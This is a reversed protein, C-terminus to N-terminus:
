ILFETGKLHLALYYLIEKMNLKLSYSANKTLFFAYNISTSNSEKHGHPLDIEM